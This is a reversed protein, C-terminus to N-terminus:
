RLKKRRLFAFNDSFGHSLFVALFISLWLIRDPEFSWINQAMDGSRTKRATPQTLFHRSDLILRSDLRNILLVFHSSKIQGVQCLVTVFLFSRPIAFIHIGFSKIYDSLKCSIPRSREATTISVNSLRCTILPQEILRCSPSLMESAGLSFVHSPGHNAACTTM